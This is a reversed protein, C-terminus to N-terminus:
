KQEYGLCQGSSDITTYDAGCNSINYWKCDSAECYVTVAM